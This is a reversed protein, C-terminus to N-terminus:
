LVWESAYACYRQADEEELTTSRQEGLLGSFAAMWCLVRMCPPACANRHSAKLEMRRDSVCAFARMRVDAISNHHSPSPCFSSCQTAIIRHTLGLCLWWWRGRRRRRRWRGDEDEDLSLLALMNTEALMEHTYYTCVTACRFLECKIVNVCQSNTADLARSHRMCTLIKGAFPLYSSMRM